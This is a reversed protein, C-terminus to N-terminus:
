NSNLLNLVDDYGKYSGSKFLDQLKNTHPKMVEKMQKGTIENKLLKRVLFLSEPYKEVLQIFRIPTM